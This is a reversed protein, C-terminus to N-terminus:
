LEIRFKLVSQMLKNELHCKLTEDVIYYENGFEDFLTKTALKRLYPNYHDIIHMMSDIDGSVAGIIVDFELPKIHSNEIKKYDLKQM